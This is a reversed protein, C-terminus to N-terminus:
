PADLAAARDALLSRVALLAGNITPLVAAGRILRDYGDELLARDFQVGEGMRPDRSPFHYQPGPFTYPGPFLNESPYLQRHEVDTDITLNHVGSGRVYMTLVDLVLYRDSSRVARFFGNRSKTDPWTAAYLRYLEGLFANLFRRAEDDNNARAFCDLWYQADADIQEVEAM